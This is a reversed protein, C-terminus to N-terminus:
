LTDCHQRGCGKCTMTCHLWGSLGLALAWGCQLLQLLQQQAAAQLTM